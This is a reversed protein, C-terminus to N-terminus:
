RKRRPSKRRDTGTVPGTKTLILWRAPGAPCWPLCPSSARWRSRAIDNINRVLTRALPGLLCLCGHEVPACLRQMSRIPAALRTERSVAEGAGSPRGTRSRAPRDDAAGRGDGRRRGRARAPEHCSGCRRRRKSVGPPGLVPYAHDRRVGKRGLARFAIRVVKLPEGHRRRVACPRTAGGEPWPEGACGLAWSASPGWAHLRFDGVWRSRGSPTTSSPGRQNRVARGHGPIRVRGHGRLGAVRVSHAVPYLGAPEQPADPFARRCSPPVVCVGPSSWPGGHCSGDRCRGPWKHRRSSRQGASGGSQSVM